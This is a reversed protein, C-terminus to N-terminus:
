TSEPDIHMGNMLRNSRGVGGGGECGVWGWVDRVWEVGEVGRCCLWM